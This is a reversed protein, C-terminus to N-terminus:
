AQTHDIDGSMVHPDHHFINVEYYWSQAGNEFYPKYPFLM